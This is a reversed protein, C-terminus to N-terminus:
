YNNHYRRRAALFANDTKPGWQGDPTVGLARQMQKVWLVVRARTNPGVIGDVHTDVIAQMARVNYPRKVHHPYGALARAANRMTLARSDTTPGWQGDTKVELTFQIRKVLGPNKVPKARPAPKPSAPVPAVGAFNPRVYGVVYKSDRRVRLLRNSINGELSYFTGDGMVKECRGTHDINGVSRSGSWDYYIQDGARMGKTGPFWAAGKAHKQGDEAGWVTYARGVKLAKLGATWMAWTQTMECWPGNGIRSVNANYWETIFNHNSGDPDEGLGLHARLRDLVATVNSM